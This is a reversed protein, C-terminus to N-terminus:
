EETLWKNYLRAKAHELSEASLYEHLRNMIVTESGVSFLDWLDKEFWCWGNESILTRTDNYNKNNVAYYLLYYDSISERVKDTAKNLDYDFSGPFAKALFRLGRISTTTLYEQTNPNFMSYLSERLTIIRDINNIREEAVHTYYGDKRLSKVIEYSSKAKEFERNSFAENAKEFMPYQVQSLHYKNDYYMRRDYVIRRLNIYCVPTVTLVCSLLIATNLLYKDSRILRKLLPVTVLLFLIVILLLVLEFRISYCFYVVKRLTENTFNHDVFASIVMPILPLLLTALAGKRKKDSM